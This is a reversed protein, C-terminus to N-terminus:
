KQRKDELVRQLADAITELHDEIRQLIGRYGECGCKSVWGCIGDEHHVDPGHGCDCRDFALATLEAM